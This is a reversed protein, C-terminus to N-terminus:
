CLPPKLIGLSYYKRAGLKGDKFRALRNSNHFRTWSVKCSIGRFRRQMLVRLMPLNWSAIRDGNSRLVALLPLGQFLCWMVMRWRVKWGYVLGDVSIFFVNCEEEARKNAPKRLQGIWWNNTASIAAMHIDYSRNSYLISVKLISISGARLQLWM